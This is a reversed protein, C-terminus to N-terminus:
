FSVMNIENGAWKKFLALALGGHLMGATAFIVMAGPEDAYSKDFMKIRKFDFMNRQVFTKCIKENTWTIFM